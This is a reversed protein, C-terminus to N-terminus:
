NSKLFKLAKQEGAANSFRMIYVGEKLYRDAINMTFRNTASQVFNESVVKTGRIDFVEITFDQALQTPINVELNDQVPNKCLFLDDTLFYEDEVATHLYSRNAVVSSKKVNEPQNEYGYIILENVAAYVSENMSLRIYRTKISVDHVKWTKYKDCNETFWYTWNEPEGISVDLNKKNHMDHFAIQTLYYEKGLDFYIHYPGKDMNWFPKWSESIPHEGSEPTLDQEDILYNANNYSGGEVEDVLMEATLVIQHPVPVNTSTTDTYFYEPGGPAGMDMFEEANDITLAYNNHDPNEFFIESVFEVRNNELTYNTNASFYNRYFLANADDYVNDVIVLYNEGNLNRIVENEPHNIRSFYNGSFLILSDAKTFNRDDVFVGKCDSIYNNQYFNNGSGLSMIGYAPAGSIINNYAKVITNDGIQLLNGHYDTDDAGANLLTNNYLEVDEVMNAIQIAERGTNRVINNFVRVHKFEMGPSKTEGLYMGETVNEIFCDHISLNEFVPVPIPPYGGYDKKAMIGVFGEHSIKVFEAECDSSLETFALGCTAASLLFGYKYQSDGTGSIKIHKCNQFTIAGWRTDNIKVQGGRNIFVIPNGKEGNLDLFKLAETRDSSIFVTDGGTPIENWFDATIYYPTSSDITYSKNGAYINLTILLCLSLCLIAVIRKTSSQYLHNNFM